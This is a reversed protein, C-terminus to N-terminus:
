NQDDLEPQERSGILSAIGTVISGAGTAAPVSWHAGRMSSYITIITLAVSMTLLVARRVLEFRRETLGFWREAITVRMLEEELEAAKDPLHVPQSDELDAGGNQQWFTIARLVHRFASALRQRLRTPPWVM